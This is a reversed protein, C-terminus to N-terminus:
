VDAMQKLLRGDALTHTPIKTESDSSVYRSFQGSRFSDATQQQRDRAGLQRKYNAEAKMRLKSEVWATYMWGLFDGNDDGRRITNDVAGMSKLKLRFRPDGKAPVAQWHRMGTQSVLKPSLWRFTVNDPKSCFKEADSDSLLSKPDKEWPAPPVEDLIKKLAERSVSGVEEAEPIHLLDEAASSLKTSAPQEQFKRGIRPGGRPM